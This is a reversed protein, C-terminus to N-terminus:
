QITTKDDTSIETSEPAEDSKPSSSKTSEPYETGDGYQTWDGSDGDIGSSKDLPDEAVVVKALSWRGGPYVGTLGEKNAEASFSHSEHAVDLRFQVLANQEHTGVVSVRKLTGDAGPKYLPAFFGLHLLPEDNEGLHHDLNRIELVTATYEKGQETYIVTDNIQM